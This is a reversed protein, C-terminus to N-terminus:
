GLRVSAQEDLTPRVIHGGGIGISADGLPIMGGGGGFAIMTFDRPDHGRNVSVLKLANVMNNNALRVIGRAVQQRDINLTTALQDLTAAVAAMNATLTGGCFYNPNIRGVPCVSSCKGCEICNYAQRKKLILQLAEKTKKNM